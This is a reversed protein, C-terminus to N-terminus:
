IQFAWQLPRGRQEDKLQIIKKQFILTSVESLPILRVPFLLESTALTNHVSRWVYHLM